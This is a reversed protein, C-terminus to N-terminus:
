RKKKDRKQLWPAEPYEGPTKWIHKRFLKHVYQGSFNCIKAIEDIKPDASEIDALLKEM